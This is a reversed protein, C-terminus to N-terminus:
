CNNDGTRQSGGPKVATVNASCPHELTHGLTAADVCAGHGHCKSLAICAHDLASESSRECPYVPRLGYSASCLTVVALTQMSGM